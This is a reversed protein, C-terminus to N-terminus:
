EAKIQAFRAVEAWKKIEARVYSSMEEPTSSFSDVGLKALQAQAERDSLIQTLAASLRRVVDQGTGAPAFLGFWSEVAYDQYGAEIMTPVNPLDKTRQRGTVALAKLQGSAIFPLVSPRSPFMMQVHGAVLDNLALADGKYPVHTIPVGTLTRLLEGALHPASGIGASAYNLGGARGKALAVLDSATNVGVNATVVLVSPMTAVQGIAVFDEAPNYPLKAYIAPAVAMSSTSGLFITYGDAKSKSVFDAGLNGGAGPRNDVVVAQGLSQGLRQALYRGIIDTTGGAAFGIVLRVPRTPYPQAMGNAALLFCSTLLVLVPRVFNM